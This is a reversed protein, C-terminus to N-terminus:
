ETIPNQRHPLLSGLWGALWSTPWGALCGALLGALWGCGAALWGAADISDSLSKQSLIKGDVLDRRTSDPVKAKLADMTPLFEAQFGARCVDFEPDIAAGLRESSHVATVYAAESHHTCSRLGLSGHKVGLTARHWCSDDMSISAAEKLIKTDKM